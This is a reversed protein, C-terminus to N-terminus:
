KKQGDCESAAALSQESNYLYGLINRESAM